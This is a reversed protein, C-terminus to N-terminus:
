KVEQRGFKKDVILVWPIMELSQMESSELESVVQILSSNIGIDAGMLNHLYGKISLIEM